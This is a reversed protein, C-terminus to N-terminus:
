ITASVSNHPEDWTEAWHRSRVGGVVGVLRITVDVVSVLADSAQPGDVSLEPLNVYTM